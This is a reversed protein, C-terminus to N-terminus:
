IASPLNPLVGSTQQTSTTFTSDQQAKLSINQQEIAKQQDDIKKKAAILNTESKKLDDIQKKKTQLEKNKLPIEIEFGKREANDNPLLNKVRTDSKIKNESNKVDQAQRKVSAQIFKLDDDMQKDIDQTIQKSGDFASEVEM